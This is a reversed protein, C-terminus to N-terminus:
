KHRRRGAHRQRHIKHSSKNMSHNDHRQEAKTLHGGNHAEQNKQVAEQHDLHAQDRTAQGKSLQGDAEGKDIRNQQNQDRQDVQNVRPHGPINGEGGPTGPGGMSGGPAGAGPTGSDPAGAQAFAATSLAFGAIIVTTALLLKKM